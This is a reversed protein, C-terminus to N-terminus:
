LKRTWTEPKITKVLYSNDKLLLPTQIYVKLNTYFMLSEEAALKNEEHKTGSQDKHEHKRGKIKTPSIRSYRSSRSYLFHAAFLVCRRVDRSKSWALGARETSEDSIELGGHMEIAGIEGVKLWSLLDNLLLYIFLHSFFWLGDFFQRSLSSFPPMVLLRPSRVLAYVAVNCLKICSAPM